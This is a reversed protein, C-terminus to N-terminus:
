VSHSACTAILIISRFLAANSRAASWLVGCRVRWVRFGVDSVGSAIERERQGAFTPNRNKKPYLAGNRDAVRPSTRKPIWPNSSAGKFRLLQVTPQSRLHRNLHDVPVVRGEVEGCEALLYM